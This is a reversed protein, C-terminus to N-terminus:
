RKSREYQALRVVRGARLDSEADQIDKLLVRAKRDRLMNEALLELAREVLVRTPLGSSREM